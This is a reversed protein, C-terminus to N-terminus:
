PHLQLTCPPEIVVQAVPRVPSACRGLPQAQSRSLTSRKASALIRVMAVM